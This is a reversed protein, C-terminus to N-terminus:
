VRSKDMNYNQIAAHAPEKIAYKHPQWWYSCRASLTLVDFNGHLVAKMSWVQGDEVAGFEPCLVRVFITVATEANKRIIWV